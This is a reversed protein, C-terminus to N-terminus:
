TKAPLRITFESGEGPASRVDIDGGHEMAVKRSFALGLGTGRTKTTFFPNFIRQLDETGIGSGDDRVAILVDGNVAATSVRISGKESVADFSNLLLNILLQKMQNYDILVGPIGEQLRSEVRLGREESEEKLLNMTDLVLENIDAPKFDPRLPRAFNLLNSTLKNIRTAEESIVTAFEHVLDSRFNKKLYHAASGIANLPNKIEHALTASLEGTAALRTLREKETFSERLKALMDNFADALTGIEDQSSTLITGEAGEDAIRDVSEKLKLLPRMLKLILVLAFLLCSAMSVLVLHFVILKKSILQIPYLNEYFVVMGFALVPIAAMLSFTTIFKYLISERLNTLEQRNISLFLALFGMPRLIHGFIWSNSGIGSPFFLAIASICILLHGLASLLFRNLRTHYFTAMYLISVIGSLYAIVIWVLPRFENFIPFQEYVQPLLLLLLPLYLLPFARKKWPDESSIAVILTLLGLCYGTLTQYLLNQNFGAAHIVAHILSNLGLIAFGAALLFTRSRRNRDRSLELSASVSFIRLSLLLCVLAIISEEAIHFTMWNVPLVCRERERERERKLILM